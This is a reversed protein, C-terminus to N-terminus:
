GRKKSFERLLMPIVLSYNDNLQNKLNPVLFYFVEVFKIKKIKYVISLPWHLPPCLNKARISKLFRVMRVWIEM